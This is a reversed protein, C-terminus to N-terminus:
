DSNDATTLFQAWVPYHDSVEAAMASDLGFAEDFRFVGFVGAYDEATYRKDFVIRDYTMESGAVNTDQDNTVVWEYEPAHLACKFGAADPSFSCDEDYYSGDANFDGLLIFDAEEPFRDRAFALVDVLGDIEAEANAPSTHVTVLVFTFGALTSFRAM